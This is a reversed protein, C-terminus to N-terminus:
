ATLKRVEREGSKTAPKTKKPIGANFVAYHTRGNMNRGRHPRKTNYLELYSGLDVQMEELTEYWKTRGM